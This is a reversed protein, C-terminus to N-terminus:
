IRTILTLQEKHYLGKEVFVTQQKIAKFFITKEKGTM